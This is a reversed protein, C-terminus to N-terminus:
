DDEDEEKVKKLTKGLLESLDKTSLLGKKHLKEIVGALLEGANDATAQAKEAVGHYSYPDPFIKDNVLRTLSWETSTKGNWDLVNFRCM